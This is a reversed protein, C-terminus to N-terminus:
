LDIPWEKIAKLAQEMTWGFGHGAKYGPGEFGYGAIYGLGEYEFPDTRAAPSKLPELFLRLEAGCKAFSAPGQADGCEVLRLIGQHGSRVELRAPAKLVRCSGERPINLETSANNL